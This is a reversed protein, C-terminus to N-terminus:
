KPAKKRLKADIAHRTLDRETTTVMLQDLAHIILLEFELKGGNMQYAMLKTFQAIHAAHLFEDAQVLEKDAEEYKDDLFLDLATYVHARAEGSNSIIEMCVMELDEQSMVKVENDM